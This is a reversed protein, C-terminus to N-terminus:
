HLTVSKKSTNETNKLNSISRMNSATDAINCNITSYESKVAAYECPNSSSSIKQAPMSPTSNGLPFTILSFLNGSHRFCHPLTQFLGIEFAKLYNPIKGMKVSIHTNTLLSLASM